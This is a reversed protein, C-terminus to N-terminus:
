IRPRDVSVPLLFSGALFNDTLSAYFQAYWTVLIAPPRPEVMCPESPKQQFRHLSNPLRSSPTPAVNCPM